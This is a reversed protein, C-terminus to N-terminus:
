GLFLLQGLIDIREFSKTSSMQELHWAEVGLMLTMLRLTVM